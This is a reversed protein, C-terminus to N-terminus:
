PKEGESEVLPEYFGDQALEGARKSRYDPIVEPLRSLLTGIFEERMKNTARQM